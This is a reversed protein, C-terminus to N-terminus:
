RCSSAPTRDERTSNGPPTCSAPPGFGVTTALRLSDRVALRLGQLAAEAQPTPQIFAQVALYDGPRAQGLLAALSAALAEPDAAPAAPIARRRTRGGHGTHRTGQGIARRAPRLPPHGSRKGGDGHGGGLPVDRSRALRPRGPPPAGGPARRGRPCGGGGGPDLRPRRGPLPVRVPPRGRLGPSRRGARRGGPPHRHGAERHEGGGTAGDLGPPRGTRPLGPVHGQGTGGPRAGGPRRGSHVWPQRGPPRRCAQAMAAAGDLLAAVDAGVLAAPVLGFHTLASFRGGVDPLAAFVRRFGQERARAALSTGPDTIAAFHPGPEASVAAVRAWTHRLFSLPEITTGSKSSVLFLTTAPDIQEDVARVAGPHTSDLVLLAPYGPRCGLTRAFVEPALSSGGMGLLVVHTVGTAVVEAAFAELAPVEGPMTESLTLWGLRDEIEPAPEATWLTHDKAWLRAVTDDEKWRQLRAAVAAAHQGLSPTPSPHQNM